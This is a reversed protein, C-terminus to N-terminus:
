NPFAGDLVTQLQQQVRDDANGRLCLVLSLPDVCLADSLLCPDYSWEELRVNADEPGSVARFAGSELMTRFTDRPLAWTPIPDDAAM